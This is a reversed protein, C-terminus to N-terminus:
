VKQVEMVEVDKRDKTLFRVSDRAPQLWQMWTLLFRLPDPRPGHVDGSAPSQSQTSSSMGPRSTRQHGQAAGASTSRSEDEYFLDDDDAEGFYDDGLDADIKTDEEEDVCSSAGLVSDPLSAGSGTRHPQCKG